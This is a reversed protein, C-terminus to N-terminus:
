SALIGAKKGIYLICFETTRRGIYSVHKLAIYFEGAALPPQGSGMPHSCQGFHIHLAVGRMASDRSAEAQPKKWIQWKALWVPVRGISGFREQPLGRNDQLMHCPALFLQCAALLVGGSGGQDWSVGYRVEKVLIPGSFACKRPYNVKVKSGQIYFILLRGGLGVHM